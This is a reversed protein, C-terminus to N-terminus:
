QGPAKGFAWRCAGSAQMTERLAGAEAQQWVGILGEISCSWRPQLQVSVGARVGVRHRGALELDIEPSGQAQAFRDATHYMYEPGAFGTVRRKKDSVDAMLRAQLDAGWRHGEATKSLPMAADFMAFWQSLRHWRRSLSVAALGAWVGGGLGAQAQVRRVSIVGSSGQPELYSAEIFDEPRFRGTPLVVGARAFFRLPREPSLWRWVRGGVVRLDGLGWVQPQALGEQKRVSVGVPLQVGAYWADRWYSLGLGLQQNNVGGFAKLVTANKSPAQAGQLSLTYSLSLEFPRQGLKRMAAMSGLSAGGSTSGGGSPHHALAPSSVTLGAALVFFPFPKM